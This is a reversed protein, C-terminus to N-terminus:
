FASKRIKPRARFPALVFFPLPLPLPLLLFTGLKLLMVGINGSINKITNYRQVSVIQSTMLKQVFVQIDRSRTFINLFLFRWEQERWFVKWILSLYNKSWLCKLRWSIKNDYENLAQTRSGHIVTLSWLLRSLREILIIQLACYPM